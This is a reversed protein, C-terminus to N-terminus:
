SCFEYILVAENDECDSKRSTVSSGAKMIPPIFIDVIFVILMMKENDPSDATLKLKMATAGTRKNKKQVIPLKLM